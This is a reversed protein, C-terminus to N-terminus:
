NKLHKMASVASPFNPDLDLAKQYYKIAKKNNGNIKYAEGLSDWVNPNDPFLETNLKFFEITPKIENENLLQYGLGNLILAKPDDPHFNKTLNKFNDKVYKIGKQMYTIYINQVAPLSPKEPVQGRIIALIGAGLDEAVPEDMNALVVITIKDRLIEYNVTNAGEFGGAHPIAGGTNNHAQIMRYFESKNKTKDRLLENGYHYERYFKMVDEATSQFGGDPNAVTEFGTNDRIEGKFTKFYGIAKKPVTKINDVYTEKLKLANVIREQVNKHYTKDTIKEIIAGLIIYGSNSYEREEGAEFLLPMQRIKLTLSAIDKEEDQLDFYGPTMHYDGFGASHNMLHDITINSYMDDSFAPLITSLRDSLKLKGEEMLQLLVVNTFTKNMSGIDFKTNITNKINKERNASGFAKKYLPVGEQAILVVGSFIDIDMYSQVLADVEKEFKSYEIQQNNHILIKNQANCATMHFIAIALIIIKKM